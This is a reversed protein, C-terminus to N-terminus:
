QETGEPSDGSDAEPEWLYVGGDAMLSLSLMGDRLLHGRVYGMDRAIKEDMSPPPCLAQTVALSDFMISGSEGTAGPEVSWSGTARNCNLQMAVRGDAGFTLTYEAADEPRMTTADM